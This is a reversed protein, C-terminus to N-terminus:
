NTQTEIWNQATILDLFIYSFDSMGYILNEIHRVQLIAAPVQYSHPKFPAEDNGAYNQSFENTWKDMTNRRLTATMAAM